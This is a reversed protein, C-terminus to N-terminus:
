PGTAGPTPPDTRAGWGGGGPTRVVLEDGEAVDLTVKGPLVQWQGARVWGNEGPAGATGGNMGWPQSRRRDGLLTVQASDLFLFRRELGDGGAHCGTGGSGRRVRYGLVRLPYDIELAEVPTNRTNTMHPQIASAGRGAPGAGAGGGMTEYYTYSRGTTHDLGGLTVNNMTGASAAPMRGPAAQALAALLVDVVRQSTEVNGGAVAAPPRPNLLCGSPARVTVPAFTGSNIPVDGVLCAVVYYVAACTVALPANIGGRAQAATGDFDALLRGDAAIDLHVRIVLPGAGFGDDDMVDEARYSGPRLARALRAHALRSTYALLKATDAAFSPADSGVEALRRAGSRQAAMQAALDGRREAPTRSNAAIVDLLGEDVTGGRVLRVPPLVLGEAVLETVLPMSGPTAGGVDAHHARTAVFAAPGSHGPLFAPSVMTIDPLHSGGAYPDNLVVIDGPQWDAFRALAAAVAAPMAGLHVPIHAAQAVLRGDGDFVACSFDLREKINASYAARQLTAGMEEAVSSLRHRLVELHGLAHM